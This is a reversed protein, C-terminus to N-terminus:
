SVRRRTPKCEGKEMKASKVVGEEMGLTGKESRGSVHLGFEGRCGGGFSRRGESGDLPRFTRGKLNLCSEGFEM